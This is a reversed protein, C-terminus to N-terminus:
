LKVMYLDRRSMEMMIEVYHMRKLRNKIVEDNINLWRDKYMKTLDADSLARLMRIYRVRRIGWVIERIFWIMALGFLPVVIYVWTEM